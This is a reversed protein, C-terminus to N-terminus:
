RDLGRRFQQQNKRTQEEFHELATSGDAFKLENMYKRLEDRESEASSVRHQLKQEREMQELKERSFITQREQKISILEAVATDKDSKLEKNKEKLQNNEKKLRKNEKSLATSTNVLEQAQQPSLGKFGGMLRKPTVDLSKLEKESLTKTLRKYEKRLPQLEEEIKEQQEDKARRYEQPTFYERGKGIGQNRQADINLDRCIACLAERESDQWAIQATQHINETQFGQQQLAKDLSNQLRMGRTCEAVPIYDVHMHVTGDPEDCHIYAGVLRLNPNRKDWEEAFRILAQKELEASNGTDSRDGIQVICEYVPHKRKDQKIKDYYDTIRRDSRTQKANYEEVAQEFIEAYAQRVPVDRVTVNQETLAKDIHEQKSTYREDRINHGRSWATGNHFSITKPM